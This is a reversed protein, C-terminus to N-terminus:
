KQSSRREAQYGEFLCNVVTRKDLESLKSKTLNRCNTLKRVEETWQLMESGASNLFDFDLVVDGTDSEGGTGSM